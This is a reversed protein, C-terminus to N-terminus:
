GCKQTAPLAGVLEDGPQEAAGAVAFDSVPVSLSGSAPRLVGGVLTGFRPDVSVDARQAYEQRLREGEAYAEDETIEELPRGQAALSERGLEMIAVQAVAYERVVEDFTDRLEEPVSERGANTLDVAEQVTAPDAADVDAVQRALEDALLIELSRHRAQSTPTGSQEGQLGGLSCLVQAFDDVRQDTITADEVSAAVGPTELGCGGLLLATSAAVAAVTVRRRARRGRVLAPVVPYVARPLNM